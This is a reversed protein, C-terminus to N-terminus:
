KLGEKGRILLIFFYPAGILSTIAGVPLESPALITRAITDALLVFIGGLIFCMIIKPRMKKIGFFTVIHPIVLGVFGIIGSEAVTFAVAVSSLTLVKRMLSNPNIGYSKATITGLKIIDIQPAIILILPLLVLCLITMFIVSSQSSSNFSGLMWMYVKEMNDKHFTMLVTIMASTFSSLAIGALLTSSINDMGKRGTVIVVGVIVIHTLVAGILAGVGVTTIGIFSAGNLGLAIVIAAGLGAGGSIGMVSPDAMKNKFIGQMLAGVVSLLGGVLVSTLIRPFRVKFLITYTTKSIEKGIVADIVERCSIGAAGMVSAALMIMLLVLIALIVKIVTNFETPSNHQRM